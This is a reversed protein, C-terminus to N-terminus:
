NDLLLELREPTTFPEGGYINPCSINLTYIDGLQAKQLLRLSGVYDAVAENDTCTKKSNTKAISINLPFNNFTDNPYARLTEIIAKVGNNALGAYVVISQSKPLRHFWPRPNGECKHYTLSGGEMFGFGISKLMHALEFKKDFGAALGVPNHFTIGGVKQGLTTENKYALSTHILHNVARFRQIRSGFKLISSHVDDPNFKFLLPKYIHKYTLRATYSLPSLM